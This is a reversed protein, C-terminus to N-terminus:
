RPQSALPLSWSWGGEFSPAHEPKIGLSDKARRLTKESIGFGERANRILERSGVAQHALAESLFQKAQGLKSTDEGPEGEVEALISQSSGEVSGGWVIRSTKIEKGKPSSFSVGDITYNFGGNDKSINSKSIAFVREDSDKKKAAIFVVRAMATFAQSGLMRDNTSKGESNKAIHHIGLVTCDFEEALNVIPQLSQRVDTAKNTDGSVACIIPDIIVLSISGLKAIAERLLPIDHAPDFACPEGNENLSSKITRIRSTNAGAAILRPKVVSKIIEESSWFLVNGATQCRSGDPWLGGTTVTAALSMAITSKGAQIAGGLLTLTAKPLFGEWLWTIAEEEIDDMCVLEISRKRNSSIPAAHKRKYQGILNAQTQTVFEDSIGGQSPLAFPKEIGAKLGSEITERTQREGWKSVHGNELSADYLEAAVTDREISGNGVHGGMTNSRKNLAANRGDGHVLGRLKSSEGELAGKAWARDGDTVLSADVVGCTVAPSASLSQPADAGILPAVASLYATLSDESVATLADRSFSEPSGSPWVYGAGSPHTGFAVFQNGQGLAEVKGLKGTIARKSPEGESARYLLLCRPSNTRTRTPAGGLFHWAAGLIQSALVEDDVDIDIAVLGDCLIGTSLSSSEPWISAAEPPNLRSRGPWEKGEPVKSGTKVAIPRFGNQWLQSRISLV